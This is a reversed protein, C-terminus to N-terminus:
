CCGGIKKISEYFNADELAERIMEVTPAGCSKEGIKYVRRVLGYNGNDIYSPDVDVGNVRITPSGPFKYKLADDETKIEVEEIHYDRVKAKKIAEYLNKRAQEHNPCDSFYLFQIKM